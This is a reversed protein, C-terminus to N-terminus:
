GRPKLSAFLKACRSAASMSNRPLPMSACSNAKAFNAACFRTACGTLSPALVAHGDAELLSRVGDWAWGGRFAGHVLLFTTM